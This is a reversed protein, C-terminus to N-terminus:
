AGSKSYESPTSSHSAHLGEEYIEVIRKEVVRAAHVFAPRRGTVGHRDRRADIADPQHFRDPGSASPEPVIGLPMPALAAVHQPCPALDHGFSEHPQARRVVGEGQGDGLVVGGSAPLGHAEERAHLLGEAPQALAAHGHGEDGVAVLAMLPALDLREIEAAVEVHDKDLALEA